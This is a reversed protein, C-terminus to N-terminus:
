LSAYPKDKELLSGSGYLACWSSWAHLHVACKDCSVHMRTGGELDAHHTAETTSDMGAMRSVALVLEVM